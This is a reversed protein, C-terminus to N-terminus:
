YLHQFPALFTCRFFLGKQFSTSKISIKLKTLQIFHQIFLIDHYKKGHLIDHLSGHCAYEYVLVRLQGDVCYGVLELFNVHKLRSVM